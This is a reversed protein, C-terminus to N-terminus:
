TPGFSDGVKASSFQKQIVEEYKMFRNVDASYHGLIEPKTNKVPYLRFNLTFILLICTLIIQLFLRSM